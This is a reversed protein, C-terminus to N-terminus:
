PYDDEKEKGGGVVVVKYGLMNYVTQLIKRDCPDRIVLGSFVLYLQDGSLAVQIEARGEATDTMDHIHQIRM